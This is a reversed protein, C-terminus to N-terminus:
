APFLWELAALSKDVYKDRGTEIGYALDEFVSRRAYLHRARHSGCHRRPRNPLRSLAVVKSRRLGHFRLGPAGAGGPWTVLGDVSTDMTRVPHYIAHALQRRGAAQAYQPLAMTRM